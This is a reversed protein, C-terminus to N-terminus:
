FDFSGRQANGVHAALVEHNSGAFAPHASDNILGFGALSMMAALVVTRLKHASRNKTMPSDEGARRRKTVVFILLPDTALSVESKCSIRKISRAENRRPARIGM